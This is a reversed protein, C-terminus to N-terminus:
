AAVLLVSVHGKEEVREGGRMQSGKNQDTKYALGLSCLSPLQAERCLERILFLMKWSMIWVRSGRLSSLLVCKNKRYVGFNYSLLSPQTNKKYIYSNIVYCNSILILHGINFRSFLQM